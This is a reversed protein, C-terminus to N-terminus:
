EGVEPCSEGDPKMRWHGCCFGENVWSELEDCFQEGDGSEGNFWMCNSCKHTQDM